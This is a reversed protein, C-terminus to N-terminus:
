VNGDKKNTFTLRGEVSSSIRSSYKVKYAVKQKPELRVCDPDINGANKINFDKSGEYSVWYNITKGSPNHLDIEKIVEEGLVCEFIIPGSKPIYHPLSQLLYFAFLMIERLSQYSLDRKNFHSSIGVHDLMHLLKDANYACDEESQCNKKMLGIYKDCTAGVYNKVASAFHLCNKLDQEFNIIPKSVNFVSEYNYELWKILIGEYSNILNSQDM